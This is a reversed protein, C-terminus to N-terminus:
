FLPKNRIIKLVLPYLVEKSYNYRFECERLHLRYTSAHMGKFKELRSRAYGWFSDLRQYQKIEGKRRQGYVCYYRRREGPDILLDFPELAKQKLCEVEGALVIDREQLTKRGLPIAFVKKGEARLGVVFRGRIDGADSWSKLGVPEEFRCHEAVRERISKLYRNVTNRNLNSLEAIQTATMDLSFLRCLQRFKGESIKGRNVYKNRM